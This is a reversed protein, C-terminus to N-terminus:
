SDPGPAHPLPYDNRWVTKGGNSVVSHFRQALPFIANMLDSLREGTVTLCVPPPVPCGAPASLASGLATGDPQMGATVLGFQVLSFLTRLNEKIETAGRVM